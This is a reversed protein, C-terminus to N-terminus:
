PGKDGTPPCLLDELVNIVRHEASLVDEHTPAGTSIAFAKIDHFMLHLLEHVVLQEILHPTIPDPGADKGFVIRCVRSDFSVQEVQAMNAHKGQRVTIRWDGLNLILKWKKVYLRAEELHEPVWLHKPFTSMRAGSLGGLM